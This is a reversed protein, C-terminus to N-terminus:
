GSDGEGDGLRGLRREEHRFVEFKRALQGRLYEYDCGDLRHVTALYASALLSLLAREASMRPVVWLVLLAEVFVPVRMHGYLRQARRSKLLMPEGLGMVEYYMQKIGMLEPFDFIIAISLMVLWSLVHVLFCTSHALEGRVSWLPPLARGPEWLHILLQVTVATYIVHVARRCVGCTAALVRQAWPSAMARHLLLFCAALGLDFLLPWLSDLGWRVDRWRLADVDGDASPNNINNNIINNNNINNNINPPGAYLFRALSGCAALGLLLSASGAAVFLPLAAAANRPAM